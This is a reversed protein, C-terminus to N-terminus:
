LKKSKLYKNLDFRTDEYDDPNLNRISIVMGTDEYIENPYVHGDDYDDFISEM